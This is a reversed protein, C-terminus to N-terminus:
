KETLAFWLLLVQCPFSPIKVLKCSRYRLVLFILREGVCGGLMLICNFYSKEGPNSGTDKRYSMTVDDM